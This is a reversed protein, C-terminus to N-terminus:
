DRTKAPGLSPLLATTAPMKSSKSTSKATCTRITIVLEDMPGVLHPMPFYGCYIVCDAPQNVMVQKDVTIKLGMPERGLLEGVDLGDKRPKFALVGVLEFEPRRILEKLVAEGIGGTGVLIVKYPERM